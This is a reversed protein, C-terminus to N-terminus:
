GHRTSPSGDNPNMYGMKKLIAPFPPLVVHLEPELFDHLQKRLAKIEAAQAKTATELWLVRAEMQLSM